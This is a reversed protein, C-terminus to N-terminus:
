LRNFFTLPYVLRERERERGKRKKEKSEKVTDGLPLMTSDGDLMEVCTLAFIVAVQM